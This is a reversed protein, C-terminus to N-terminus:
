SKRLSFDQVEHREGAVLSSREGSECNFKKFSNHTTMTEWTSRLKRWCLKQGWGTALIDRTLIEYGGHHLIGLCKNSTM